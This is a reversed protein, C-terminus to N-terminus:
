FDLSNKKLAPWYGLNVLTSPAFKIKEMEDKIKYIYQQSLADFSELVLQDSEKEAEKL